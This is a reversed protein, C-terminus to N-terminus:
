LWGTQEGENLLSSWEPHVSSGLDEVIFLDGRSINLKCSDRSHSGVQDYLKCSSYQETTNVYVDVCFQISNTFLWIRYRHKKGGLASKFLIM